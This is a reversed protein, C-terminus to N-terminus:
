TYKGWSFYSFLTEESCDKVIDPNNEYEYCIYKRGLNSLAAIRSFNSNWGILLTSRCNCLTLLDLLVKHLGQKDVKEESSTHVVIGENYEFNTFFEKAIDFTLLCDSSIFIKEDKNKIEKKVKQIIETIYERYFEEKEKDYIQKDGTRIHLGIDYNQVKRLIEPNIIFIDNLVKNIALSISNVFDDSILEKMYQNERLYSFMNLNSWIMINKDKWESIIDETKFYEISEQNNMNIYVCQVANEYWNYLPNILFGETLDSHDWKILIKMGLLNAICISSALGLIRDCLGGSCFPFWHILFRTM